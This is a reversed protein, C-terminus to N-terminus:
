LGNTQSGTIMTLHGLLWQWGNQKVMLKVESVSTHGLGLTIRHSGKISHHLENHEHTQSFCNTTFLLLLALILKNLENM